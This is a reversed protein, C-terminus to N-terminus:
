SNLAGYLRKQSECSARGVELSSYGAFYVYRTYPVFIWVCACSTIFGSSCSVSCSMGSLLQRSASMRGRILTFRVSRLSLTSRLWPWKLLALVSAFVIMPVLFYLLKEILEVFLAVLEQSVRNNEECRRRKFERWAWTIAEGRKQIIERLMSM